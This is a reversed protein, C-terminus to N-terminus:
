GRWIEPNLNDPGAANLCAAAQPAPQLGAVIRMLQRRREMPPRQFDTEKLRELLALIEKGSFYTSYAALTVFQDLVAASLWAAHRGRDAIADFAPGAALCNAPPPGPDAQTCLADARLLLTLARRREGLEWAVRAASALLYPDTSDGCSGSLLADASHLSALRAAPPRKLDHAARYCALGDAGVSPRDLPQALIGEKELQAARDQKCAFLNLQYGDPAAAPDFPALLELGPILRYSAYGLTALRSVLQLNFREGHKIEYMILPSEARLFATGGDIIREEEGEADLKLFDVRRCGHEAALADLTTLPVEETSGAQAGAVLANLEANAELKLHATGTRNSLATRIVTMHGFGNLDASARLYDSTQASPEISWVRGQAGALRALPLSYMGYNAGIDVIRVGPHLHRRLFGIEDEFWTEQELLVYTTMLGIQNPLAVSVDGAIRLVLAVRAEGPPTM